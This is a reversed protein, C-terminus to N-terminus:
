RHNQNSGFTEYRALDAASPGSVVTGQKEVLSSSDDTLFKAAGLTALSCM